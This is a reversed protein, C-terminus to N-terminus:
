PQSAPRGTPTPVEPKLSINNVVQTVGPVHQALEGARRKQEETNVFGSLQVIGNFTKVDVGNFKFVPENRLEGQVSQTIRHDDVMRGESREDTRHHGWSACGTLVGVATAAVISSIRMFIKANPM